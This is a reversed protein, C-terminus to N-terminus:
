APVWDTKRSSKSFNEGHKSWHPRHRSQRFETVLRWSFSLFYGLPNHGCLEGSQCLIYRYYRVEYCFATSGATKAPYARTYLLASYYM